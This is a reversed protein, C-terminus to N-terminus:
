IDLQLPSIVLVVTATDSSDLTRGPAGEARARGLLLHGYSLDRCRGELLELVGDDPIWGCFMCKCVIGGENMRANESQYM